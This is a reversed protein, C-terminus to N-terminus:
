VWHGAPEACRLTERSARRRGGGDGERRRIARTKGVFLLVPVDSYTKKSRRCVEYGGAGPRHVDAILLDPKLEKLKELASSGDGIAVVEYDLDMFTLEVVTQITVSDDAILITQTM